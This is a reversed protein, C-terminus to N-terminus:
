KTDNVKVVRFGYNYNTFRPQPGDRSTVKAMDEVYYWSGGRIVRYTGKTPGAPDKVSASTYKGYYDLCWEWANGSMDYIGLENPKLKGVPHIGKEGTTEDYWAVEDIDDSGAYAYNKSNKGGKAAYEWQAETPLSYKGGYKQSLWDCYAIADFYTVNVIPHNDNWQWKVAKDHEEYWAAPPDAPMRRNTENCFQKYQAVTVEYKGISFDSLTVNHVPQEDEYGDKNGMKFTGGKVDIMAPPNAIQASITSVAPLLLVTMLLKKGIFTPLRM